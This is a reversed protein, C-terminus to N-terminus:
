LNTQFAFSFFISDRLNIQKYFTMALVSFFLNQLSCELCICFCIASKKAAFHSKGILFLCTPSIKNNRINMSCKAFQFCRGIDVSIASEDVTHGSLVIYVSNEYVTCVHSVIYVNLQRLELGRDIM